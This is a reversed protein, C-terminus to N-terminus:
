TSCPRARRCSCAPSVTDSTMFGSTHFGPAKLIRAFVKAVNAYDLPTNARSPFLWAAEGWGRVTRQGDDQRPGVTLAREVRLFGNGLDVDGPQLALGEGPGRAGRREGPCVPLGASGLLGVVRGQVRQVCGGVTGLGTM